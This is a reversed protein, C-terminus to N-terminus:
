KSKKHIIFFTVQGFQMRLQDREQIYSQILHKSELQVLTETRSGIDQNMVARVSDSTNLPGPTFLCLKKSKM